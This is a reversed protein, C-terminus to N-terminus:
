SNANPYFTQHIKYVLDNNTLYCTNTLLYNTGLLDDMWRYILFIIICVVFDSICYGKYNM